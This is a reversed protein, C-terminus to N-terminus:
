GLMKRPKNRKHLQNCKNPNKIKLKRRYANSKKLHGHSFFLALRLAVRVVRM